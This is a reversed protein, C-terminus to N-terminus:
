RIQDFPRRHISADLEHEQAVRKIDDSRRKPQFCRRPGPIALIIHRNCCDNVLDDISRNFVMEGRNLRQAGRELRRADPVQNPIPIPRETQGARSVVCSALRDRRREAGRAVQRKDMIGRFGDLQGLTQPAIPDDGAVAINKIRHVEIEITPRATKPVHQRNLEDTTKLMFAQRCNGGVKRLEIACLKGGHSSRSGDFGGLSDGLRNDLRGIGRRPNAGPQDGLPIPEDVM